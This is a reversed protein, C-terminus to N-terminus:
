INEGFFFAAAMRDAMAQNTFILPLLFRIDTHPSRLHDALEMRWQSDFSMLEDQSYPSNLARDIVEAAIKASWMAPYIGENSTAAVFGGADGILLTHKAVHTDMDLALGAPSRIPKAQAAQASWDGPLLGKGHALRCLQVLAPVVRTSDEFISVSLSCRGEGQALFGFSGRQDVGLIVAVRANKDRRETTGEVQGVWLNVDSGRMAFGIRTALELSRGTALILLRSQIERDGAKLSVSSENLRVDRVEDGQVVVAGHEAAKKALAMDFQPRRVMYGITEEVKPSSQKSLDANFFTVESIPTMGCESTDCGLDRLLGDARTSLWGACPTPRRPRDRELLVVKRGMRSLLIAATSGAPGAGIVAADYLTDAM